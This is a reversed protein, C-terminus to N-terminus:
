LNHSGQDCCGSSSTTTTTVAAAAAAAAADADAAERMNALDPAADRRGGRGRCGKLGWTEARQKLSLAM